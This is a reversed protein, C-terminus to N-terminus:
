SVRDPSKFSKGHFPARPEASAVTISEFNQWIFSGSASFLGYVDVGPALGSATTGWPNYVRFPSASSPNYGVLAYDHDDVLMRSEPNSDSLVVLQGADWAAALDSPKFFWDISSREGTIAQLAWAAYGSDLALYSNEGEENTTVIGAGNAEAYAKEALAVWLVGNVPHDYVKGGKPLETDVTVYRAAGNTAYFRVRYLGVVSGNEVTTGDYTFMSKIDAPDRAAVAAFSSLLWCDGLQGERVDLYSPGGAGFLKGHVARYAVPSAPNHVVVKTKAAPGNPGEHAVVSAAPQHGGAVAAATGPDTVNGIASLLARTGM